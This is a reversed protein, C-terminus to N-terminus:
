LQLTLAKRTTEPTTLGRDGLELWKRDEFRSVIKDITDAKVNYASLRTPVGLSEFFEVTKDIAKLAREDDSGETIKWVREAFQVLKGKKEELLTKWLGPLVIALTRAHDIGHLATLEHGISHVSWDGPVGCQILGNLAMTASWMLNSMAEYDAPNEYVAPAQEILTVLIAEAFRDQIPANVPYTLYQETVHVFADVIGNAVQRKPLTGAADPLLFSFKPFVLPSAFSRKEDTSKRSIVANKNMESGTAPLTLVVGLPVASVVPMGKALINWPDGFRYPIAAAIFKTADIVSGGGVALLFDINKEKAIEVAKMATEYLPNPEIGGFETVEFRELAAKVRDYVGNKMISGGGYLFMVKSGAPIQTSIKPFQEKGFFVKVPNYFEFDTM